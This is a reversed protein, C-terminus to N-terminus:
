FRVKLEELALLKGINTALTGTLNNSDLNFTRLSTMRDLIRYDISGTISNMFLTLDSLKPLMVFADTPLHGKIKNEPLSLTKLATLSMIEKPISGELNLNWLEVSTVEKDNSCVIGHWTCEHDPTLWEQLGPVLTWHLGNLKIFFLVLAHRQILASNLASEEDEALWVLAQNRASCSAMTENSHLYEAGFSNLLMQYKEQAADSIETISGRCACQSFVHPYPQQSVQVCDSTMPASNFSGTDEVGTSGRVSRLVLVVLVATVLLLVAATILCLKKRVSHSSDKQTASRTEGRVPLQGTMGSSSRAAYRNTNYYKSSNKNSSDEDFGRLLKGKPKTSVPLLKRILSTVKFPVYPFNKRQGEEDDINKVLNGKEQYRHEMDKLLKAQNQNVSGDCCSLIDIVAMALDSETDHNNIPKILGRSEEYNADSAAIDKNDGDHYAFTSHQQRPEASMDESTLDGYPSSYNPENGKM